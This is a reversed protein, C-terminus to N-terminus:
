GTNCVRATPYLHPQCRVPRRGQNLRDKRVINDCGQSVYHENRGHVAGKLYCAGLLKSEVLKDTENQAVVLVRTLDRGINM